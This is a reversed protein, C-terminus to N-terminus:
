GESCWEQINWTWNLNNEWASEDKILKESEIELDRTSFEKQQRSDTYLM